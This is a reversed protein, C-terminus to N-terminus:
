DHRPRLVDTIARALEHPHTLQPVHAGPVTVPEVQLLEALKRSGATLFPPATAGVVVTVPVTCRALAAMDIVASNNDKDNEVIVSDPDVAVMLQSVSSASAPLRLIM